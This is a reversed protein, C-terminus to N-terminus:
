WHGMRVTDSMRRLSVGRRWWDGQPNLLWVLLYLLMHKRDSNTGYSDGRLLIGVLILVLAVKLGKLLVMTWPCYGIWHCTLLGFMFWHLTITQKWLLPHVTPLPFLYSKKKNNNCEHHHCHRRRRCLSSSGPTSSFVTLGHRFYRGINHLQNINKFLYKSCLCKLSPFFHKKKNKKLYYYFFGM